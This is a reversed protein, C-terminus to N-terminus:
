SVEKLGWGMFGMRLLYFSGGREIAFFLQYTSSGFSLDNAMM